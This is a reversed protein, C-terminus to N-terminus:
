PFVNMAAAWDVVGSGSAVRPASDKVVGLGEFIEILSEEASGEVVPNTVETIDSSICTSLMWRGLDMDIMWLEGVKPIFGKGRISRLPMKHRAGEKTLTHVVGEHIMEITVLKQTSGVSPRKM